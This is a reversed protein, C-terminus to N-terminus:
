FGGNQEESSVAWSLFHGFHIRPIEFLLADKAPCLTAPVVPVSGADTHNVIAGDVMSLVHGLFNTSTVPSSGAVYQKCLLSDVM